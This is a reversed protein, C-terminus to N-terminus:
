RAALWPSGRFPHARPADPAAVTRMAVVSAQFAYVLARRHETSFFSEGAELVIDRSDNDLTIWLSGRRCAVQTGSIDPIDLLARAALDFEERDLLATTNMAIEKAHM